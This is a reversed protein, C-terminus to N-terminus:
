TPKGVLSGVIASPAPGGCRRSAGQTVSGCQHLRLSGREVRDMQSRGTDLTVKAHIHTVKAHIYIVRAMGGERQGKVEM